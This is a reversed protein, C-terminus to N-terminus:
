KVDYTTSHKFRIQRFKYQIYYWIAMIDTLTARIVRLRLHLLSKNLVWDFM